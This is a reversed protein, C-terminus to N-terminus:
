LTGLGWGEKKIDLFIWVMTSTITLRMAIPTPIIIKENAPRKMYVIM